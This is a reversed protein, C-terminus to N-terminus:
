SVYLNGTEMANEMNKEKPNEMIPTYVGEVNYPFHTLSFPDAEVKQVSGPRRFIPRYRTQMNVTLHFGAVHLSLGPREFLMMAM